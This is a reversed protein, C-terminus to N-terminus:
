IDERHRSLYERHHEKAHLEGEKHQAYAIRTKLSGTM